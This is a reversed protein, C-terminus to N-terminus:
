CAEERGDDYRKIKQLEGIFEYGVPAAWRKSTKYKIKKGTKKDKCLNLYFMEFGISIGNQLGLDTLARIMQAATYADRKYNRRTSSFDDIIGQVEAGQHKLNAILEDIIALQKPSTWQIHPIHKPRISYGSAGRASRHYKEWNLSTCGGM